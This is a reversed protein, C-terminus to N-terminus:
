LPRITSRSPVGTRIANRVVSPAPAKRPPTVSGIATATRSPLGTSASVSAARQGIDVFCDPDATREDSCWSAFPDPCGPRSSRADPAYVEAVPEFIEGTPSAAEAILRNMWSNAVDVEVRNRGVHLSGTVEVQWPATWVIGQDVGNVRVRALDGVEGLDLVVASGDLLEGDVSVETAYTGVGAFGEAAGGLETWPCPGGPLDVDLSVRCCWVGARTSSGNPSWAGHRTPPAEPCSSCRAWPRCSSGSAPSRQVCRRRRLTVPDWAVLPKGDAALVHLSQPETSPNALFHVDAVETRRAIRRVDAGRVVLTSPVGLESLAAALDDTDRM